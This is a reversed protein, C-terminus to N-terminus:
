IHEYKKHPCEKGSRKGLNCNYCLVQLIKPYGTRRMIRFFDSASKSGIAARHRNGDGNIHDLSLLAFRQEGCCACEGGYAALVQAKLKRRYRQQQVLTYAM